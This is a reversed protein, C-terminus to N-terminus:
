VIACAMARCGAQLSEHRIARGNATGDQLRLTHAHADDTLSVADASSSLNHAIGDVIKYIKDTQTKDAKTELKTNLNDFRVQMYKFLKTFQDESM